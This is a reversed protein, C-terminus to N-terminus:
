HGSKSTGYVTRYLAFIVLALSLRLGGTSKFIYCGMILEYGKVLPHAM